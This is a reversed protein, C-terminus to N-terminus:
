IVGAELVIGAAYAKDRPQAALRAVIDDGLGDFSHGIQAM